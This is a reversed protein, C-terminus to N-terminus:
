RLSAGSPQDLPGVTALLEARGDLVHEAWVLRGEWDAQADTAGIVPGLETECCCNGRYQSQSTFAIGGVRTLGRYAHGALLARLLERGVLARPHRSELLARRQLEALERTEAYVCKRGGRTLTVSAAWRGDRRRYVTGQGNARRTM